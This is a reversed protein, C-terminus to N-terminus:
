LVVNDPQLAPKKVWHLFSTKKKRKIMIMENISM